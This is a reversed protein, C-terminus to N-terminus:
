QGFYGLYFRADAAVERSPEKELLEELIEKSKETEGLVGLVRGYALVGYLSESESLLRLPSVWNM